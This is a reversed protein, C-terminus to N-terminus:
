QQVGQISAAKNEKAMSCFQIYNKHRQDLFFEREQDTLSDTKVEIDASKNIDKTLQNYFDVAHKSWLNGNMDTHSYKMMPQKEHIM